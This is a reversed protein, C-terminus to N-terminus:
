NEKNEGRVLVQRTLIIEKSHKKKASIVLTNIGEKLGVQKSFYGNSDAFIPESNITIDAEPETKGEVGIFYENITQKDEPSLIVLSPASFIRQLSLGLYLFCVVVALVIFINRFIKPWIILDERNVVQQSFYEKKDKFKINKYGQDFDALFKKVDLGLFIAYERLFNRGYVGSPLKNFDGDELAKLYKYNINLKKSVNKLSLKKETRANRLGEAIAENETFIKNTTFINM